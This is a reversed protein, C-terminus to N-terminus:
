YQKYMVKYIYRRFMKLKCCVHLFHISTITQGVSLPLPLLPLRTPIMPVVEHITQFLLM